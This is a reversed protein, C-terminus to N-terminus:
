LQIRAMSRDQPADRSGESSRDDDTAQRSGAKMARFFGSLMGDSDVRQAEVEQTYDAAAKHGLVADFVLGICHAKAAHSLDVLEDKTGWRTAVTGKQDFEGLDYLDYIDYGCSERSGAKCAPPIWIRDVGLERFTPLADKIRKWQQGDVPSFWEFAQIMLTNEHEPEEVPAKNEKLKKNFRRLYKAM